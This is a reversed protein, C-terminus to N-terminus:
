ARVIEIGISSLVVRVAKEQLGIRILFVRWDPTVMYAMFIKLLPAYKCHRSLEEGRIAELGGLTRTL